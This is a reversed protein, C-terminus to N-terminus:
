LALLQPSISPRSEVLNMMAEELSSEKARLYIEEILQLLSQLTKFGNETTIYLIEDTNQILMKLLSTTKGSGAKGYLCILARKISTNRSLKCVRM